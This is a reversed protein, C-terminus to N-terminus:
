RSRRTASRQVAQTSIQINGFLAVHCVDMVRVEEVLRDKEKVKLV